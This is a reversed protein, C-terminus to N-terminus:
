RLESHRILAKRARKRDNHTGHTGILEGAQEIGNQILEDSRKIGGTRSDIKGLTAAKLEAANGLLKLVAIQGLKHRVARANRRVYKTLRASATQRDLLVKLAISDSRAHEHIQIITGLM